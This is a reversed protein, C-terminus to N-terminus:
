EILSGFIEWATIFICDYRYHNRGINVLRIFRCEGGGAVPFTGTFRFGNLQKNDEERAVVQWNEGEMSTEVLWSKLHQYGPGYVGNTRITYHTPVIRREKFDYCLWNNRTHPINESSSRYASYFYSEAELDTANRAANSPRNDYAGSHPNAGCTEKEFSGSTVEVVQCDHVNGHCERTLHAIIGDPVDFRRGKRVSPAFQMAPKKNINPLVLRARLGSWMSVNLEYFQRSLIALFDSMADTSCYEFRVFELLGFMERNTETGRSIFDYLSDESELTLSGRSLIEYIMPFPLAMLADHHCLLLHFHSAIFELETSVDCRTASLFGVRDVVNHITIGNRLEPYVSRCLESNWLDACIAAFTRRHASDVAVGGGTAKLVSGFLGHADEVELTLESITADIWHLKSVRPSLFQAVSSPCRYRHDGIVFTFDDPSDGVAANALGRASLGGTV